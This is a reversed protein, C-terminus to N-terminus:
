IVSKLLDVANKITLICWYLVIWKWMNRKRMLGYAVYGAILLLSVIFLISIGM